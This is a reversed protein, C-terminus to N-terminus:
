ASPRPGSARRFPPGRRVVPEHDVVLQQMRERATRTSKQTVLNAVLIAIAIVAFGLAVRMAMGPRLLMSAEPGAKATAAAPNKKGETSSM